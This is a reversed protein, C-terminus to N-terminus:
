NTKLFGDFGAQADIDATSGIAQLKIIAPGPVKLYPGFHFDVFGVGTSQLALSHKRIYNTTQVDPNENIRLDMNMTVVAGGAKAIAGWFNTMYLTQISPIGYIAMQTQGNGPLIQCSITTDTAATAKITGVNISTAGSTLVKMRHIIVYSNATNVPTTGDLTIDESTEALAWTKLGWIRITRAGVGVPSGDDDTSSSVIAHTRAATPALWIQQTPTSNALPWIDTATTQVGDPAAGFKNVVSIGPIGGAAAELYFDQVPFSSAM